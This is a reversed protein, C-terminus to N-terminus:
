VGQHIWHPYLYLNQDSDKDVDMSQTYRDFRRIQELEGLGENSSLAGLVSIEHAPEYITKTFDNLYKM